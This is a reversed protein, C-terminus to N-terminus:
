VFIFMIMFMEMVNCHQGDVGWWISVEEVNRRACKSSAPVLASLIELHNIHLIDHRNNAHRGKRMVRNGSSAKDSLLNAQVNIGHTTHHLIYSILLKNTKTV